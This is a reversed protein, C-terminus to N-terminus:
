LYMSADRLGTKKAINKPSKAVDLSANGIETGSRDYSANQTINLNAKKAQMEKCLLNCKIGYENLPLCM